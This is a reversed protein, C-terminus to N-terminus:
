SWAEVECVCFMSYRTIKVIRYEPVDGCTFSVGDGCLFHYQTPVYLKAADVIEFGKATQKREQSFETYCNFIGVANIKQETGVYDSKVSMMRFLKVPEKFKNLISM